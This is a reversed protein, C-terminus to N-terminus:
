VIALYKEKTKTITAYSDSKEDYGHESVLEAGNQGDVAELDADAPLAVGAFFEESIAIKSDHTTGEINRGLSDKLNAISASQKVSRSTQNGTPTSVGFSGASAM